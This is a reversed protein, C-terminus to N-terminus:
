PALPSRDPSLMWHTPAVLGDDDSCWHDQHWRAFSAWGTGSTECTAWVLQKGDKPATEIPSWVSAIMAQEIAAIIDRAAQRYIEDDDKTRRIGPCFSDWIAGRVREIMENM